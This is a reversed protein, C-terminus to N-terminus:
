VFAAVIRDSTIGFFRVQRMTRKENGPRGALVNWVRPIVPLHVKACTKSEDVPSLETVKLEFSGLDIYQDLLAEVSKGDSRTISYGSDKFKLKLPGIPKAFNEKIRAEVKIDSDGNKAHAYLGLTDSVKEALSISLLNSIVRQMVTSMQATRTETLGPSFVGEVPNEGSVGIDFTAKYIPKFPRVLQAVIIGIFVPVAIYVFLNRRRLFVNVFERVDIREDGHRRGVKAGANESM